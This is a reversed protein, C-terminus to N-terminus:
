EGLEAAPIGGGRGAAAGGEETRGAVEREIRRDAGRGGHPSPTLVAWALVALVLAALRADLSRSRSEPEPEPEPKLEPQPEALALPLPGPSQPRQRLPHAM